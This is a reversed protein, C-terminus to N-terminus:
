KALSTAPLLGLFSLGTFGVSFLIGGTGKGTGETLGIFDMGLMAGGCETTRSGVGSYSEFSMLFGSTSVTTDGTEGAEDGSKGVSDCDDVNARFGTPSAAFWTRWALLVGVSTGFVAVGGKEMCGGMPSGADGAAM